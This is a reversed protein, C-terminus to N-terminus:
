LMVLHGEHLLALLVPVEALEDLRHLLLHPFLILMPATSAGNKGVKANQKKWAFRCLIDCFKGNCFVAIAALTSHLFQLQSLHWSQFPVGM